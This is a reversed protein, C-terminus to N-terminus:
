DNEDVLGDHFTYEKKCIQCTMNGEKELFEQQFCSHCIPHGCPFDYGESSKKCIYCPLDDEDEQKMERIPSSTQQKKYRKGRNPCKVIKDPEHKKKWSSREAAKRHNSWDTHMSIEHFAQEKNTLHMIEKRSLVMPNKFLKEEKKKFENKM